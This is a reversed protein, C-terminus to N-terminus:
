LKKWNKDGKIRKKVKSIKKTKTYDINEIEEKLFNLINVLTEQKYEIDVSRIAQIYSDINKIHDSKLSFMYNRLSTIDGPFIMIYKKEETLIDRNFVFIEENTIIDIYNNNKNKNVITIDQPKQIFKDEEIKSPLVVYLDEDNIKKM